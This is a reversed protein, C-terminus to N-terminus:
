VLRNTRSPLAVTEASTSLMMVLSPLLASLQRDLNSLSFPDLNNPRNRAALRSRKRSNAWSGWCSKQFIEKRPNQVTQTTSEERSSGQCYGLPIPSESVCHLPFPSRSSLDLDGPLKSAHVDTLAESIDFPFTPSIPSQDFRYAGLAPRPLVDNSPQDCQIFCTTKPHQLSSTADVIVGNCLPSRRLATCHVVRQGLTPLSSPWFVLPDCKNSTLTNVFSLFNADISHFRM